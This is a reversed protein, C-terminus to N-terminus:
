GGILQQMCECIEEYTEQGSTSMRDYDFGLNTILEDLRKIVKDKDLSIVEM